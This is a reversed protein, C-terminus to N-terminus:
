RSVSIGFARVGEPVRCRIFPVPDDLVQIPNLIVGSDATMSPDYHFKLLLTSDRVGVVDIRNYTAAAIAAREAVLGSYTKVRYLRGCSLAGALELGSGSREAYQIWDPRSFFAYEVGYAEFYETLLEPAWESSSRGFVRRKGDVGAFGHKTFAEASLGGLVQIDCFYPMLHGLSINDVLVRGSIDRAKLDELVESYSEPVKAMPKKELQDPLYATFAPLAVLLLGLAVVQINRRARVVEDWAFDIATVTLPVLTLMAPIIFRYPQTQRLGAFFSFGYTVAFFGIACLSYGLLRRKQAASDAKSMTVTLWTGVVGWACLLHLFANRDFHKQFMRDSVADMVLHKWTGQFGDYHLPSYDAITRALPWAWPLLCFVVVLMSVPIWLYSVAGQRPAAGIAGVAVIAIALTMTPHCYVALSACLGFLIGNLLWRRGTAADYAFRYSSLALCAAVPYFVNGFNWFGSMQSDLHWLLLLLLLAMTRKRASCLAKRMSFWLLLPGLISFTVTVVYLNTPLSMWPFLLQWAEYAKKGMSNWLGVPYGAMFFPDYGHVGGVGAIGNMSAFYRPLDGGYILGGSRLVSLPFLRLVLAIHVICAAITVWFSKGKSGSGGTIRESNM